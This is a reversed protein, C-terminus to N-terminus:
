PVVSVKTMKDNQRLKLVNEMGEVVQGFVCYGGDLQPTAELCVYFQSTASNPDSTRAMGLAGKVHRHDTIELPVTKGSGGTGTGTPDGGQIVFGEVYRHFVLGDYFGKAVLGLFNASTLRVDGYIEATFPGQTTEFRVKANMSSGGAADAAKITDQTRGGCGALFMAASLVLGIRKMM